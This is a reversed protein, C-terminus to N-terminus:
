LLQQELYFFCLLIITKAPEYLYLQFLYAIGYDGLIQEQSQDGWETLPNKLNNMFFDVHSTPHGYGVLYQAFDSLGENIFTEEDPDTDRHLLHQFEHAFTGEYMFPNTM